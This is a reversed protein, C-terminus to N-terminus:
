KFFHAIHLWLLGLYEHLVRQSVWLNQASLYWWHTPTGIFDAPAAVVQIGHQQYHRMSRVMHTASTILAVPYDGVIQATAQAEEATDKVDLLMLIQTQPVGLQIAARQMLKAHAVGDAGGYGSVIFIAAPNHQWVRVGELLRGRAVMSLQQVVPRTPESHHGSGLVAVYAVTQNQYPAYHRELSTALWLTIPSFSLCFLYLPGALLLRKAFRPWRAMLSWGLLMLGLASPIPLLAAAVWKKLWFFLM